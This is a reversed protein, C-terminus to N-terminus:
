ADDAAYIELDIPTPNYGNCASRDVSCSSVAVLVDREARLLIADGPKSLPTRVEMRGEPHVVTHQFINFPMPVEDQTVGFPALAGALNELCNPHDEQGYIRRYMEPRCPPFLLDHRGVDDAVITLLPLGSKAYLVHGTTVFLTRAVERTQAASFVEARDPDAFAVLDAVQEGEPDIVRLLEGRRLRLARGSQKPIHVSERPVQGPVVVLADTTM